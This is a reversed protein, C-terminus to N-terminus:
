VPAVPPQIALDLAALNSKFSDHAAVLAATATAVGPDVTGASAVAAALAAIAKTVEAGEDVVDQAINAVAARLDDMATM